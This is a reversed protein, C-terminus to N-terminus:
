TGEARENALDWKQMRGLVHLVAGLAYKTRMMGPGSLEDSSVEALQDATKRVRHLTDMVDFFDINEWDVETQAQTTDILREVDQLEHPIRALVEREGRADAYLAPMVLLGIMPRYHCSM